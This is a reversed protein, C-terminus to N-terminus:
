LNGEQKSQTVLDWESYDSTELEFEDEENVAPSWDVFTSNQQLFFNFFNNLQM